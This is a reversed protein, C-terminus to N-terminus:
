WAEACDGCSRGMEANARDPEEIAEMLLGGEAIGEPRTGTARHTAGDAMRGDASPGQPGRHMSPDTWGLHQWRNM